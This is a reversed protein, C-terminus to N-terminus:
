FKALYVRMRSHHFCLYVGGKCPLAGKVKNSKSHFSTSLPFLEGIHCLSAVEQDVYIGQELHKIEHKKRLM